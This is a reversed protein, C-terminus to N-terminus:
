TNLTKQDVDDLLGPLMLGTDEVLLSAAFMDSIFHFFCITSKIFCFTVRCWFNKLEFLDLGDLDDLIIWIM